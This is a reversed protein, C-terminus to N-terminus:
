PVVVQPFQQAAVVLQLQIIQPEQVYYLLNPRHEEVLLDQQHESVVQVVAVAMNAVVVVVERL